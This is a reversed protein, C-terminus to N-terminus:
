FRYSIGVSSYGSIGSLDDRIKDRENDLNAQTLLNAPDDATLSVTPTDIDTIGMEATFAFGAEGAAKSRWGVGLYPTIDQDYDIDLNLGNLGNAAITAGGVSITDGIKATADGNFDAEGSILGGSFYVKRAWGEAFPRWDLGISAAGIDGEGEFDLDSFELEFDDGDMGSIQGRITWQDNIQYGYFLGLGFSNATIGTEHMADQAQLAPAATLTVASTVVSLLLTNKILRNM